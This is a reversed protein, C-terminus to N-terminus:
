GSVQSLVKDRKGHEKDLKIDQKFKLM